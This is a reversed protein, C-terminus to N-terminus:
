LGSALDDRLRLALQHFTLFHINLFAHPEHGTLLQKLREVLSASPAIVALPAFPDGTKHSRIDEVLARDLVPHFPGTVLRLM